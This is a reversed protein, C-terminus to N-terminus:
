RGFVEDDRLNLSEINISLECLLNLHLVYTNLLM